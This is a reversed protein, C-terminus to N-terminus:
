ERHMQRNQQATLDDALGGSQQQYVSPDGADMGPHEALASLRYQERVAHGKGIILQGGPDAVPLAGTHTGHFLPYLRDVIGRLRKPYEALRDPDMKTRVAAFGRGYLVM